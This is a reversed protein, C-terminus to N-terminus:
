QVAKSGPAQTLGQTYEPSAQGVLEEVDVEVLVEVVEVDVVDVLV